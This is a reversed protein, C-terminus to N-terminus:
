VTMERSYSASTEKANNREKACKKDDSGFIGYPFRKNKKKDFKDEIKQTTYAVRDLKTRLNKLKEDHLAQAVNLAGTVLFLARFDTYEAEGQEASPAISATRSFSKNEFTFKFDAVKSFFAKSSADSTKIIDSLPIFKQAPNEERYRQRIVDVLYCLETLLTWAAKGKESGEGLLLKSVFNLSIPRANNAAIIENAISRSLNPLNDVIFDLLGLVAMKNRSESLPGSDTQSISLTHLLGLAVELMKEKKSGGQDTTTYTAENRLAALVVLAARPSVQSIHSNGYFLHHATDVAHESSDLNPTLLDIHNISNDESNILQTRANLLKKVLEERPEDLNKGASSSGLVMKSLTSDQKLFDDVEPKM